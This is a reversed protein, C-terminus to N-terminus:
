DYTQIGVLVLIGLYLGFFIWPVWPEIATFPLYKKKDKGEGLAKWEAAFLRLPLHEEVAHIVEFKGTNIGKYSRLLRSWSYCLVLGAVGVGLHWRLSLDPSGKPWAIGLLGVLATNITLFFTNANQRRESVKDMLEVYLKYQELLHARYESGYQEERAALLNLPLAANTAQAAGATPAPAVPRTQPSRRKAM